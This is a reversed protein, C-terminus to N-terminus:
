FKTLLNYIEKKIPKYLHPHIWKENELEVEEIFGTNELQYLINGWIFKTGETPTALLITETGYRCFIRGKTISRYPDKYNEKLKYVKM